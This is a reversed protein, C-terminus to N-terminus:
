GIILKDHNAPPVSFSVGSRFRSRNFFHPVYHEISSKTLNIGEYLNETKACDSNFFVDCEM